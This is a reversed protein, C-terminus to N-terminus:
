PSQLGAFERYDGWEDVPVPQRIEAYFGYGEHFDVDELVHTFQQGPTNAEIASVDFWQKWNAVENEGDSMYFDVTVGDLKRPSEHRIIVDLLIDQRVPVEEVVEAGDESTSEDSAGAAQTDASESEGNVADEGDVEEAVLPVQRVVFGETMAAEYRSRADVLQEEPSKQQCAIGAVLLALAAIMRAVNWSMPAKM